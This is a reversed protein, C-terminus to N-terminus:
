FTYCTVCRVEAHDVPRPQRPVKTDGSVCTRECLLTSPEPACAIARVVHLTPLLTCPPVLRRSSAATGWASASLTMIMTRLIRSGPVAAERVTM